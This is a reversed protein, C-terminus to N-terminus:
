DDHPGAAGGGWVGGSGGFKVHPSNQGTLTSLGNFFCPRALYIQKSATGTAELLGNNPVLEDDDDDDDGDNCDDMPLRIIIFPM